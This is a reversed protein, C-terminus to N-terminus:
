IHCKGALIENFYIAKTVNLRIVNKEFSMEGFSMDGFLM